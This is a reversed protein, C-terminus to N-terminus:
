HLSSFILTGFLLFIVFLSSLMFSKLTMFCILMQM